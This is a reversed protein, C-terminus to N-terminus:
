RALCFNAFIIKQCRKKFFECLMACFNSSLLHNESNCGRQPIAIKKELTINDPTFFPHEM